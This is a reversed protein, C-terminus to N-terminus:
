PLVELAGNITVKGTQDIEFAAAGVSLSLSGSPVSISVDGSAGLTLEVAGNKLVLEGDAKLHLEAKVAGESDRSYRRVEGDKAVSANVYDAFGVVAQGEGGPHSSSAVFDGPLPRSDDGPPRFLTGVTDDGGGPDFTIDVTSEDGDTVSTVKNVTGIRGM